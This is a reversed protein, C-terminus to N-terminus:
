EEILEREVFEGRLSAEYARRLREANAPSRLLYATEELSDFYDKPMLVASGEDTVIEIPLCDDNVQQILEALKQKAVNATVAM